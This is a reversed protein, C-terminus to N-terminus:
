REEEDFCAGASILDAMSYWGELARCERCTSGDVAYYFQKAWKRGDETNPWTTTYTSGHGADCRWVVFIREPEETLTANRIGTM